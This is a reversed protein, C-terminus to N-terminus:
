NRDNRTLGRAPARTTLSLGKSTKFMLRLILFINIQFLNVTNLIDDFTKEYLMHELFGRKMWITKM